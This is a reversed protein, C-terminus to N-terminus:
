NVKNTPKGKLFNELNDVFMSLKAQTAERTIYGIPPYMICNKYKALKKSDEKSLEDSHDLIFTIDKKKLREILAPNDVLEMPALNIVVAGSKIQNIKEKNLFRETEPTFALNLSIFDSEKILTGIAKYQIGKKEYEKKRNKSWYSVNAGFGNKAIEAIRGGIRGLGIVGFNKDKLEYGQFSGESYDGNKAQSKARTLERISEILLGFALEAVGETSYGTINCVTIGKKAAYVADIRGYGTGLMGIYKLNSTKDIISKDVAAGLRVLLVDASPLHKEIQSSDKPLLIKEQTLKDIRNWESKPLDSAGYGLMLVKKFKM